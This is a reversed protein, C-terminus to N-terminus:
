HMRYYIHDTSSARVSVAEWTQEVRVSRERLDVMSFLPTENDSWDENFVVGAWESYRLGSGFAAVGSLSIGKETKKGVVKSSAGAPFCAWEKNAVIQALFEKNKPGFLGAFHHFTCLHNWMCWATSACRPAIARLENAISVVSEGLGGIEPSASIRMIDNNKLDRILAADISRTQDARVAQSSIQQLLPTVFVSGEFAQGSDTFLASDDLM